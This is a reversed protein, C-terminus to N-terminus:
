IFRQWDLDVFVVGLNHLQPKPVAGSALRGNFLHM